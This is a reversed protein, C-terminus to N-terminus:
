FYEDADALLGEAQKKAMANILTLEPVIDVPTEMVQALLRDHLQRDFSLRAYNKAYTVQAPLFKGQSIEIAKEFHVKAEEPRGGLAKPLLTKLIGMALHPSGYYYTEDLELLRKVLAEVKAIDALNDWDGSHAQIFTSWTSIVLFLIEEDGPQITPLIAEFEEYPKDHLTAFTTNKISMATFAYNKAKKSMIKARPKDEDIVFASTYASYLQAAAMLMDPDDPSGEIFSDILLLYAPAGDRVLELDQQKMISTSLNDILPDTAKKM